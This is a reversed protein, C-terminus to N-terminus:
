KMIEKALNTMKLLTNAEACNIMINLLDDAFNDDQKYVSLVRELSNRSSTSSELAIQEAKKDTSNKITSDYNGRWKRTLYKM